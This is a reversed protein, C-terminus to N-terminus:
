FISNSDADLWTPNTTSLRFQPLNERYVETNGQWNNMGDNVGFDDDIM